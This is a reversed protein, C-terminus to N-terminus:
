VGGTMTPNTKTKAGRRGDGTRKMNPVEKNEPILCHQLTRDLKENM